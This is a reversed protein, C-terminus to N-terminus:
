KNDKKLEEQIWAPIRVPRYKEIELIAATVDAKAILAGDRQRSMRQRFGMRVGSVPHPGASVLLIDDMKAALKWTIHMDLVVFIIGKERRIEEHNVGCTRLWETRAREFFNLYRSHYVVGGADTDEYYVRYPWVRAGNEDEAGPLPAGLTEDIDNL